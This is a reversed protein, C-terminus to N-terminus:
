ATTGGGGEGQRGVTLDVGIREEVDIVVKGKGDDEQNPYLNFKYESNWYEDVKTKVSKKGGMLM